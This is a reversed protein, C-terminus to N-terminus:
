CPAHWPYTVLDLYINELRVIIKLYPDLDLEAKRSQIKLSPLISRLYRLSVDIRVEGWFIMEAALRPLGVGLAKTPISDLTARLAARVM